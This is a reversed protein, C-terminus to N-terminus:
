CTVILNQHYYSLPFPVQFFYKGYSSFLTTLVCIPSSFCAVYDTKKKKEGFRRKDVERM